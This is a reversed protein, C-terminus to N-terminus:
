ASAEAPVVEGANARRLRQLLEAYKSDFEEPSMDLKRAVQEEPIGSTFVERFITSLPPPLSIGAMYVAMLRAGGASAM